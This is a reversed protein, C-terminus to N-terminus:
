PRPPLEDVLIRFGERESERVLALRLEAISQTGHIVGGQRLAEYFPEMVYNLSPIVEPRYRGDRRKAGTYCVVTLSCRQFPVPPALGGDDIKTLVAIRMEEFADLYPDLKRAGFSKVEIGSALLKYVDVRM